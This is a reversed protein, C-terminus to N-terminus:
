VLPEQQPLREHDAATQRRALRFDMVLPLHDSAIRSLPTRPVDIGVVEVSPSCFIHDIRLMPMRAPFTRHPRGHVALQADRLKSSLRGHVRSRRLTNFDGLLALPDRCSPHGAWRPGLLTRVQMLREYALLSLHTNIIQLEAEATEVAVWIAGRPELLRSGPLREARILRMPLSTLIADGYREEEVQIAPHFHFAMGLHHAIVHAQDIGGTRRRGVDLEQLAVIDPKCEAIVEAVRRPDARGDMGVCRHVNYTMIRLM